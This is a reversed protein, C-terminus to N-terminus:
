INLEAPWGIAKVADVLLILELGKSTNFFVYNNHITVRGQLRNTLSSIEDRILRPFPSLTPLSINAPQM